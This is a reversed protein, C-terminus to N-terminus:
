LRDTEAGFYKNKEDGLKGASPDTLIMAPMKESVIGITLFIRMVPVIELLVALDQKRDM